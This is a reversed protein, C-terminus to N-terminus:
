IGRGKKGGTPWGNWKQKMGKGWETGNQMVMFDRAHLNFLFIQGFWKENENAVDNHRNHQQENGM